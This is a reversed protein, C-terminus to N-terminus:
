LLYEVFLVFIESSIMVAAEFKRAKIVCCWAVTPMLAGEWQDDEIDGDSM